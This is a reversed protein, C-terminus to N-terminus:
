GKWFLDQLGDFIYWPPLSLSHPSSSLFNWQWGTVPVRGITESIRFFGLPAESLIVPAQSSLCPARLKAACSIEEQSTQDPCWTFLCVVPQFFGQYPILDLGQRSFSRHETLISLLSLSWQWFAPYLLSKSLSTPLKDFQTQCTPWPRSLCTSKLKPSLDPSLELAQPWRESVMVQFRQENKKLDFKGNTGRLCILM